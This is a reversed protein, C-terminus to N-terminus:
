SEYVKGRIITKVISGPFIIGEFPSWGAKTKLMSKAIAIPRNIDMISLSGVHGQEIKGFKLDIFENMFQGPNFSCVRAIDQPTFGHEAMLWSVFPGYTDLHTLGSMGKEKEEATHPAHDTALYDIDGNKLATILALRNEKTQRIPPNVQFFNHNEKTMMTEDFYLHHPTVEMTAKVGRKKASVIKQMGEATSCHCIKGIISYKEIMKLAFDVASIEAAEPRKQEHSPMNINQRLINPDECHFSVNQGRYNELFKNLEDFSDFFLNGVSKGIYVKYPVKSPLPKTNPTTGAYLVVDVACKKALQNKEEYSVDDIPPLPNNPMEAFAAVGGNIAAQGASIFDEKYDQSHDVCERAHVHLDVFGPFILEDKLVLDAAGTEKGVSLILGDDGIEVRGRETINLKVINGEITLM